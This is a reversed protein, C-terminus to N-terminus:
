HSDPLTRLLEKAPVSRVNGDKDGIILNEDKAAATEALKRLAKRVGELVKTSLEQIDTSNKNVSM